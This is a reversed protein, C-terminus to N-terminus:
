VPSVVPLLTELMCFLRSSDDWTRGSAVLLSCECQNKKKREGNEYKNKGAFFFFVKVAQSDMLADSPSPSCLHEVLFRSALFKIMLFGYTMIFFLWSVNLQKGPHSLVDFCFEASILTKNASSALAHTPVNSTRLLPPLFM